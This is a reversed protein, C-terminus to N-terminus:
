PTIDAVLSASSVTGNTSAATQAVTLVYTKNQVEGPASDEVYIDHTEVSGAAAELADVPAEGIVSGTLSDARVRITLATTSAGTTLTFVGRLNVTQGPKNTSVTSLTAVVTEATTVLPTDVTNYTSVRRVM